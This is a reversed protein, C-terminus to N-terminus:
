GTGVGFQCKVLRREVRFGTALHSIMAREVRGCGALGDGFHGGSKGAYRPEGNVADMGQERNANTIFHFGFDRRFQALRRHAVVGSRVQQVRCQAIDQAGMHLLRSAHYFGRAKTEIECM